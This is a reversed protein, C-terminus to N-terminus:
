SMNAIFSDRSRLGAQAADRSRELEATRLQVTSALNDEQRAAKRGIWAIAALVVLWVLLHSVILNFRINSFRELYAVLPLNIGTAGRVEGIKYGLHGHCKMCGSEMMMPRLYRLHPVGNIDTQKWIEEASDPSSSMIMLQEREWDDPANASNLFKLGTIRGRVGYEDEYDDMMQRLMSAPNILTLDLGDTTTVDRGPVHAMFPIPQQSQTIPVYVGGHRTGWRRFTIDKSLIAQAEASVQQDMNTKAHDVNYALSGGILLTWFIISIITFRHIM